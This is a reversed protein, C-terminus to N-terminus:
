TYFGGFSCCMSVCVYCLVCLIAIVRLIFAGSLVVFPFVCMVCFSCFILLVPYLCGGFSCCLSVCVYCSGCVSFLLFVFYLCGGLSCCLSVCVYCLVHMSTIGSLKFLGWLFM